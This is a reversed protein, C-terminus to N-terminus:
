GTVEDHPFLFQCMINIIPSIIDEILQITKKDDVGLLAVVIARVATLVMEKKEKGSDPVGDFAKEAVKLLEPLAKLIQLIIGIWAMM